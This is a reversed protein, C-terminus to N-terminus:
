GLENKKDIFFEMAQSDGRIQICHQNVYSFLPVQLSEGCRDQGGIDPHQFDKFFALQRYLYFRFAPYAFQCNRKISWIILEPGV